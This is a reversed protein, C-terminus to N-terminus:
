RYKEELYGVYDADQTPAEAYAAAGSAVGRLARVWTSLERDNLANDSPLEALLRGVMESLTLGQEAARASAREILEEDIQLTITQM